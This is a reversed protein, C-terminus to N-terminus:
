SLAHYNEQPTTIVAVVRWFAGSGIRKEELSYMAAICCDHSLNRDNAVHDAAGDSSRRRAAQDKEAPNTAQGLHKHSQARNDSRSSSSGHSYRVSESKEISRKGTRSIIGGM